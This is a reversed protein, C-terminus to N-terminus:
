DRSLVYMLMTSTAIFSVFGVVTSMALVSMIDVRASDIKDSLMLALRQIDAMWDKNEHEDEDDEDDEDEEDEQVIEGEEKDDVMPSIDGNMMEVIDFVSDFADIWSGISYPRFYSLDLRGDADSEMVGNFIRSVLTESSMSM